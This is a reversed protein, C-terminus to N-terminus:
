NRKQPCTNGNRRNRCRNRRYNLERFYIKTGVNLWKDSTNPPREPLKEMEAYLAASEPLESGKCYRGLRIQPDDDTLLGSEALIESGETTEPLLAM